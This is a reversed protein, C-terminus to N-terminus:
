PRAPGGKRLDLVVDPPWPEARLLRDRKVAASPEGVTEKGPAHGWTAHTGGATVLIFGDPALVLHSLPVKDRSPFLFGAIQAASHVAPHGYMSGRAGRPPSLGDATFSPLAETPQDPLWAGTADVVVAAGEGPQVRLVPVRFKLKVRVQRTPPVEVREVAEVWPHLGFAAALRAPLGTDLVSLRDPLGGLYQVEGLFEAKPMAAPADCDVDTFAVQYRDQPALSERAQQGLWVLLFLLATAALVPALLRLVMLGLPALNLRMM